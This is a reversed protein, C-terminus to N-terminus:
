LQNVICPLLAEVSAPFSIVASPCDVSMSLNKPLMAFSVKALEWHGTRRKWFDYVGLADKGVKGILGGEELAERAAAEYLALGKIPNGKPITWRGSDRTTILVIRVPRGREMLV